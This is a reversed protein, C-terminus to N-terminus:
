DLLSQDALPAMNIQAIAVLKEREGKRVHVDVRTRILRSGHRIIQADAVLFEGDGRALCEINISATEAITGAVICAFGAAANAAYAMDGGAFNGLLNPNRNALLTRFGTDTLEVSVHPHRALLPQLKRLIDEDETM